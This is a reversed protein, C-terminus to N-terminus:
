PNYETVTGTIKLSINLMVGEDVGVPDVHYALCLGPFHFYSGDSLTILYNDTTEDDYAAKFLAAAASKPVYVSTIALTDGDALKKPKYDMFDVSDHSSFDILGKEGGIAPVVRAEELSTFSEPSSGDGIAVTIGHSHIGSTTM